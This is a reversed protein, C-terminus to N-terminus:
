KKLSLSSFVCSFDKNRNHTTSGGFRGTTYHVDNGGDTERERDSPERELVAGDHTGAGATLLLGGALPLHLQQARPSLLLFVGVNM